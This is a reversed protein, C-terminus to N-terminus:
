WSRGGGGGFGGGGSFGGGGGFGGGGSRGSPAPRSVFATAMSRTASRMMSNLLLFDLLTDNPAIAWAPPETRLEKFKDEWIDSVGLVQAYPLIHYYFEPDEELMMELRDKEALRIFERFGLLENLSEVYEKRRRLAFPAAIATASVLLSFFVAPLRLMLTQPILLVAIAATAAALVIQGILVGTRVKSSIRLSNKQSWYGIACIAALPLAAALGWLFYLSTQIHLGRAFLTAAFLLVALITLAWATFVSSKTFMAPVLQEAERKAKNATTYFVNTLSRIDVKDSLLFIREFVTREHPPADAPLDGIKHLLPDSEDTFDITLIGKDAWYYILSTIDGNQVSGDIMAGALLPDIGKPPSFSTVPTPENKSPLVALVIAAALLAAAVLLAAIEGGSLTMGGLAGAPLTCRVTVPTFPALQAATVTVTDGDVAHEGNFEDDNVLLDGEPPAPLVLTLVANEIKATWGGGILNIYVADSGASAPLTFKYTLTYTVPINVPVTRDSEGLYVSIFGSGIKTKFADDSDIEAYVEGSNYPLDRIIGHKGSVSFVATIKETVRFTRGSEYEYRVEYNQLSYTNDPQQTGGGTFFNLGLVFAAAILWVIFGSLVPVVRKFFSM